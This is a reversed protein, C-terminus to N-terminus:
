FHGSRTHRAPDERAPFSGTSKIPRGIPEAKAGTVRAGTARWNPTDSRGPRGRSRISRRRSSPSQGGRAPRQNSLNDQRDRFSPDGSDPSFRASRSPDSRGPTSRSPRSPNGRPPSDRTESVSPYRRDRRYSYTILTPQHSINLNFSNNWPLELHRSRNGPVFSGYMGHLHESSSRYLEERTRAM